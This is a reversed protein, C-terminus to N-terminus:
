AGGRKPLIPEVFLVKERTYTVKGPGQGKRKVVYKLQTCAVPVIASTKGKSYYAAISAAREVSRRDPAHRGHSRLIVHSGGINQAHLWYDNKHAWKLLEGNERDNRGVFIELGTESRFRRPFREEEGPDSSDYQKRKHREAIAKLEKIDDTKDAQEREEAFAQLRAHLNDLREEALKAAARIKKARKFYREANAPGDLTQDLELEIKGAGYPNDVEVSAMGKEIIHVNALIANGKQELEQPDTGKGKEREVKAITSRISREERKLAGLIFNRLSKVELGIERRRAYERVADDLTETYEASVEHATMKVPFVDRPLGDQGIILTAGAGGDEIVAVLVAMLKALEAASESSVNVAPIDSDKNAQAAAELAFYRSGACFRKRVTDAVTEDSSKLARRIAPLPLWRLDPYERKPPSEYQVGSKVARISSEKASVKRVAGLVAGDSGVAILNAHRGTMEFILQAGSDFRFAIVRDGPTIFVSVLQQRSFTNSHWTKGKKRPIYKAEVIQINPMDPVSSLKLASDCDFGVYVDYTNNLKVTELRRGAFRREIIARQALITYYDM